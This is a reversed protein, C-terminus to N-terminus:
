KVYSVLSTGPLNALGHHMLQVPVGHKRFIITFSGLGISNWVRVLRSYLDHHSLLQRQQYDAHSMTSFGVEFTYEGVAIDMHIMTHFRIKMGKPLFIPVDSGYELTTKGHIVVGKDNRIRLGGIPVDIDQSLEFEYFFSAMQGQEFVSCPVGHQDCLAVGTCRAWGNSVEAVHSIDLFAETPPWYTQRKTSDVIDRTVGSDAQTLSLSSRAFDTQQNLMSYRRVAESASGQFLEKGQDLLVARECFQEVDAMNHTVLIVSVGRERM